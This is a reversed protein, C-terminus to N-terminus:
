PMMGGSSPMMSTTTSSQMMVTSVTSTHMMATTQSMMGNGAIIEMSTAYKSGDSFHAVMMVDYSAGSQVLMRSMMPMLKPTASIMMSYTGTKGTSSYNFTGMMTGNIYVDMHIMPSRSNVVITGSLNSTSPDFTFGQMMISNTQSTTSTNGIINSSLALYAGLSVIAVVVVLITITLIKSIAKKLSM